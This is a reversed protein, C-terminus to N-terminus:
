VEKDAFVVLRNSYSKTVKNWIGECTVINLHSGDDNAFFVETADDQMNYKKVERVVFTTVVGDKDKTSLKDGQKLKNLNTFVGMKGNKLRGFHGTILASGDEGPRPGLNYWGANGLGKSVDVAGKSTLGVSELAIDLKIKPIKLRVPIETSAQAPMAFILCFFLLGFFVGRKVFEVSLFEKFVKNLQM